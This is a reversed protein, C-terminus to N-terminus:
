AFGAQRAVDPEVTVVAHSSGVPTIEIRDLPLTCVRGGDLEVHVHLRTRELMLVTRTVPEARM